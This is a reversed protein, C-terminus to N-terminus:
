QPLSRTHFNRGNRPLQRSTPRLPDFYQATSRTGIAMSTLSYSPAGGLSGRRAVVPQVFFSAHIEASEHPELTQPRRADHDNSILVMSAETRPKPVLARLIRVSRGSIDTVYGDFSVQMAPIDGIRANSSWFSNRVNQVIRLTETPVVPKSRLRAWLNSWFRRGNKFGASIAGGIAVLAGIVQVPSHAFEEVAHKLTDIL